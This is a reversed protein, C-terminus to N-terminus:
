ELISRYLYSLMGQSGNFDILLLSTLLVAMIPTVLQSLRRKSAECRANKDVADYKTNIYRHGSQAEGNLKVSEAGEERSTEVLDDLPIESYLPDVPAIFRYGIRSETKIYEPKTAKDGLMKRLLSISQTLSSDDVKGGRETWVQRYIEERSLVSNPHNVLLSLIQAENTGIIIKEDYADTLSREVVDFLFRSNIVVKENPTEM